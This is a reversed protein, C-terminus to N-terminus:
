TRDRKGFLRKFVNVIAAWIAVLGLRIGSIPEAKVAPQAPAEAPAASDEATPEASTAAAAQEAEM